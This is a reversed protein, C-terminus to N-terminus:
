CLTSVARSRFPSSHRTSRCIKRRQEPSRNLLILKVCVFAERACVKKQTLLQQQQLQRQVMRHYNLMKGQEVMLDDISESLFELHKELFPNTSLDLRDFEQAVRSFRRMFAAILPPVNATSETTDLDYLLATVLHPNKVSVPITEFIDDFKLQKKLASCCFYLYAM